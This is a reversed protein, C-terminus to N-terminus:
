QYKIGIALAKAVAQARNTVDIKRYIKSLHAKVTVEELGLERAILKNPHGKILFRLVDKERNTLDGFGESEDEGDDATAAADDSSSSAPGDFAYTPIYTEGLLVLKLANLLAERGITKPIFGNAGSGLAELIVPREIQGSLIVIPTEPHQARMDRLGALGNMGPMMLDLVILDASGHDSLIETAESLSSAQLVEAKPDLLELTEAVGERLLRHDDAIVVRM